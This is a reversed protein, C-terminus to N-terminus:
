ATEVFLLVDIPYAGMRAGYLAVGGRKEADKKVAFSATFTGGELAALM